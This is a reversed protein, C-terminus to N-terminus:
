EVVPTAPTALSDWAVEAWTRDPGPDEEPDTTVAADDDMRPDIIRWATEGPEIMGLRRRAEQKIFDENSYKNIDEILENKQEQKAVISENLRALESRGEYYTRLPVAIAILVILVVTIIITIGVIDGKLSFRNDLKKPKPLNKEADRSAVPVLTPTRRPRRKAGTDSTSSTAM